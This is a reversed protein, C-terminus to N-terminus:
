SCCSAILKIYSCILHRFLVVPFVVLIKVLPVCFNYLLVSFFVLLMVNPSFAIWACSGFIHVVSFNEQSFSIRYQISMVGKKEIEKLLFTQAATFFAVGFYIVLSFLFVFFFSCVCFLFTNFADTTPIQFCINCCLTSYYRSLISFTKGRSHWKRVAAFLALLGHYQLNPPTIFAHCHCWQIAIRIIGMTRFPFFLVAFCSYVVCLCTALRLRNSLVCVFVCVFLVYWLLFLPFFM